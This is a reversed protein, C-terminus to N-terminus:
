MLLRLFISKVAISSDGAPYFLGVLSIVKNTVMCLFQFCSVHYIGEADAGLLTDHSFFVCQKRGQKHIIIAIVAKM